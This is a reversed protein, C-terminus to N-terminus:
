NCIYFKLQSPLFKPRPRRGPKDQDRIRRLERDRVHLGGVVASDENGCFKWIKSVYNVMKKLKELQQQLNLSLITEATEDSNNCPKAYYNVTKM